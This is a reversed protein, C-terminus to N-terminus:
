GRSAQMPKAGDRNGALARRDIREGAKAWINALAILCARGEDSASILALRQCEAAHERYEKSSTM